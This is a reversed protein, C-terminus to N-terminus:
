AYDSYCIPLRAWNPNSHCSSSFVFPLCVYICISLFQRKKELISGTSKNCVEKLIRLCCHIIMSPFRDFEFCLLVNLSYSCFQFKMVKGGGYTIKTYIYILFYMCLCVYGYLSKKWKNILSCSSLLAIRDKSWRGAGEAPYVCCLSGWDMESCHRWNSVWQKM